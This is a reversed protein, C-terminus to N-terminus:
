HRDPVYHGIKTVGFDNEIQALVITVVGNNIGSFLVRRNGCALFRCNTLNPMDLTPIM